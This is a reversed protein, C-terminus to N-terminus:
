TADRRGRECTGVISADVKLAMTCKTHWGWSGASSQSARSTLVSSPKRSTSPRTKRTCGGENAESSALAAAAPGGPCAGAGAAASTSATVVSKM